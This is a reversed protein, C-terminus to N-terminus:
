RRSRLGRRAIADQAASALTADLGRALEGLLRDAEPCEGAIRGAVAALWCRLDRPQTTDRLRALIPSAAAADFEHREAVLARSAPGLRPAEAVLATSGALGFQALAAVAQVPDLGPVGDLHGALWRAAGDGRSALAAKLAPPATPAAAAAALVPLLADGAAAMAAGAAAATDSDASAAAAVVLGGLEPLPCSALARQMLARGEASLMAPEWRRPPCLQQAFPLMLTAPLAGEGALAGRECSEVLAQWTRLNAGQDRVPLLAQILVPATLQRTALTARAYRALLGRRFEQNRDASGVLDALGEIAPPDCVEALGALRAAGDDGAGALVALPAAALPRRPQKALAAVAAQFARDDQALLIALAGTATAPDGSLAQCLLDQGAQGLGALASAAADRTPAAQLLEALRAGPLRDLRAGRRVADAVRVPDCPGTALTDIEWQAIWRREDGRAIPALQWGATGLSALVGTPGLATLDSAFAVRRGDGVLAGTIAEALVAREARLLGHAAMWGPLNEDLTAPACLAAPDGGNWLMEYRRMREVLQDRSALAADVLVEDGAAAPGAPPLALTSGVQAGLNSWSRWGWGLGELRWAILRTAAAAPSQRELALSGHGLMASWAEAQRARRLGARDELEAGGRTPPEGTPALGPEITNSTGAAALEALWGPTEGPRERRVLVPLVALVQTRGDRQVAWLRPALDPPLGSFSAPQDDRPHPLVAAAFACLALISIAAACGLLLPDRRNRLAMTGWRRPTRWWPRPMRALYAGSANLPGQRRLLTTDDDPRHNIFEVPVRVPTGCASCPLDLGAHVAPFRNTRGCSPCNADLRIM